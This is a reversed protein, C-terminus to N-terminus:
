TLMFADREKGLSDYINVRVGQQTAKFVGYHYFEGGYGGYIASGSTGIVLQTLGSRQSRNYLHEHGCVYATVKHKIMIRWLLDRDKPYADLSSGVHPGVPYAPDHSFVFIYPKKNATLDRDLWNLQEEGLFHFRTPHESTISVFHVSGVDYSYTIGKYGEPGNSPLKPFAENFYPLVTKLGNTEHNGVTPLIVGPALGGIALNINSWQQRVGAATSEANIIDGVLLVAEPQELKMRDIIGYAVQPPKPGATRIDGLVGFKVAQFSPTPSPAVTATPAPTATPPVATATPPVATATPPPAPTATPATTPEPTATAQLPAPTAAEEGGCAVLGSLSAAGGFALVAAKRVFRRRGMQRSTPTPSEPTNEEPLNQNESAQNPNSM